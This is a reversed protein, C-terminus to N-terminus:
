ILEIKKEQQVTKETCFIFNHLLNNNYVNRHNFCDLQEDSWIANKVGRFKLIINQM